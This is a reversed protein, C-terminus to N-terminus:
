LQLCRLAVGGDGVAHDLLDGAHRGTLDRADICQASSRGARDPRNTFANRARRLRDPLADSDLDALALGGDVEVQDGLVASEITSRLLATRRLTMSATSPIVPRSTVSTFTNTFSM